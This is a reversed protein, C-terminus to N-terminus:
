RNITLLQAPSTWIANGDVLASVQYIYGGNAMEPLQVEFVNPGAACSRTGEYVVQGLTNKVSVV